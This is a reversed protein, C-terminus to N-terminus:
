GVRPTIETVAAAEAAAAAANIEEVLQTQELLLKTYTEHLRKKIPGAPAVPGRVAGARQRRYLEQLRKNRKEEEERQAKREEAQRKKREEQKQTIYMRVAEADYHRKKQVPQELQEVRKATKAPSTSRSVRTSSRVRPEVTRSSGDGLQLDDLISRIDASLLDTSPSM